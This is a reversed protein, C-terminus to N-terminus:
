GPPSCNWSRGASGPPLARPSPPRGKEWPGFLIVAQPPVLGLRGALQPSALPLIVRREILEKERVMGGLQGWTDARIMRGGLQELIGVDGPGVPELKEYLIMDRRVTYGCRELAVVGIEGEDALLCAIRHVGAAVLRRELETLMASGVGRRWGPALSIRMLLARVGGTTAVVTGVLEDGVVAVVAPAGARVTSILDSLGFV